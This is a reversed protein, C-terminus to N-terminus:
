LRKLRPDWIDRLADGFMNVAFVVISIALGPFISLWPAKYMYQMAESLSRGWSPHPPPISLGLFSLAAEILIAAGLMSTAVILYAALTNPVVHRFIIRWPKCGVARAAEVYPFEKVSVAISRIVRNARPISPISIALIVNTISPGLVAMIAIALVLGPFAMIVDMVRQIGMDAKGGAYGSIVGILAGVTTGVLTAGIGVLASVRAGLIVRSLVDRGVEDTGMFHIWSPGQLRNMVDTSLPDYPTIWPGIIAIIIMGLFVAAGVAGLPKDRFFRTIIVWWSERVRKRTRVTAAATTM